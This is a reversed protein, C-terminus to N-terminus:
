RRRASKPAEVLELRFAERRPEPEKAGVLGNLLAVEEKYPNEPDRPETEVVAPVDRFRPDNALRWFTPLGLNGEGVHEHRDVHSGLPKKSDNLHFARVNVLGM